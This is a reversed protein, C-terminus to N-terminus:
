MNRPAMRGVLELIRGKGAKLRLTVGIVRANSVECEAADNYNEYYHLLFGGTAAVSDTLINCVGDGDDIEIQDGNLRIGRTKGTSDKYSNFIIDTDTGSTVASANKLELAIRSMAAQEKQLTSSCARSWLFGEVVRFFGSCAVATLIGAVILVIIVEILTFGKRSTRKKIQM